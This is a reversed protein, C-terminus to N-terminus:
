RQYCIPRVSMGRRSISKPLPRILALAHRAVMSAVNRAYSAPQRVTSRRDKPDIVYAGVFLRAGGLARSAVAPLAVERLPRKQHDDRPVRASCTSRALALSRRSSSIRSKSKPLSGIALRPANDQSWQRSCGHARRRVILASILASSIARDRRGNREHVVGARQHAPGRRPDPSSWGPPHVVRLQTERERRPDPLRTTSAIEAACFMHKKDARNVSATACNTAM